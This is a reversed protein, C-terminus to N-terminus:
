LRCVLDSRSQLESTHEESRNTAGRSSPQLTLILSYLRTLPALSITWPSRLAPAQVWSSPVRHHLLNACNSPGCRSRLVISWTSHRTSAYGHVSGRARHRSM